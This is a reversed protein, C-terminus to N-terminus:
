GKLPFNFARLLARAEDDTKATTTITIDMGRLKDVKDFDIEPFVIQERLGMSFNGRGDFSKPNLGRFDRIRPIAVSVLRELFEYMRQNRMTVKCGIPWGERIKFGAVSKRANTVLPKQGSIATMDSLAGEMAKRDASAEGVGMNLTIKTIKPVEMINGLGLEEKLKPAIEDQYIKKLDSM